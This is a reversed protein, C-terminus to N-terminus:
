ADSKGEPEKSKVSLDMRRYMEGKTLYKYGRM